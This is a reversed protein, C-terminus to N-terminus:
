CYITPKRKIINMKENQYEQKKVLHNGCFLVAHLKGDDAFPIEYPIERVPDKGFLTDISVDFIDALAPILAIDPCSLMNEWKSVAQFTVGLKEALADQTLGAARRLEAIKTCLVINSNSDSTMSIDENRKNHMNTM